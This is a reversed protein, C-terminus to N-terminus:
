QTTPSVPPNTATGTNGPTTGTASQDSSTAGTSSGTTSYEENDTRDSCGFAALFLLAATVAAASRFRIPMETKM